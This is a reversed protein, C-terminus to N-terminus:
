GVGICSLCITVAKEFVAQPEDLTVGLIFFVLFVCLLVYPLNRRM